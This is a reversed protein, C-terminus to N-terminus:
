ILTEFHDVKFFLNGYEDVKDLIIMDLGKLNQYAQKIDEATAPNNNLFM